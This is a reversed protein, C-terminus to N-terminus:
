NKWHDTELRNYSNDKYQGERDESLPFERLM